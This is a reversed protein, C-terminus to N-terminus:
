LYKIIIYFLLTKPTDKLRLLCYTRVSKVAQELNWKVTEPSVKLLTAAENRKLQQEKILLYTQRQKDPLRAIAEQLIVEFEQERLAHDAERAELTIPDSRLAQENKTAQKQEKLVNYTFNRAITYIWGPFNEVSQLDERKLWIKMFTDLLIEEATWSDGTIQLATAYIKSRYQDFLITFARQDGDAVQRLLVKEDIKTEV